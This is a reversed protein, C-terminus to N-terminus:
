RMDNALKNELRLQKYTQYQKPSGVYAQNHALDPFAYYTKGDKQVLTVKDIPLAQLKQQQTATKPVIVKFVDKQRRILFHAPQGRDAAGPEFFNEPGIAVDPEEEYNRNMYGFWLNFSGDPNADFGEFVPAIGQGSWHRLQVLQAGAALCGALM